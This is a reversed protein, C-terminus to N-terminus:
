RFLQRRQRALVFGCIACIVCILSSLHSSLVQATMLATISTCRSSPVPNQYILFREGTFEGQSSNWARLGCRGRSSVTIQTM